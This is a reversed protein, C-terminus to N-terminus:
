KKKKKSNGKITEDLDFLFSNTTDNELDALDSGVDYSNVNIKKFTTAKKNKNQRMENRLKEFNEKYATENGFLEESTSAGSPTKGEELLVLRKRINEKKFADDLYILSKKWLKIAEIRMKNDKSKEWQDELLFGLNEYFIQSNPQILIAKKYNKIAENANKEKKWLINGLEYYPIPNDPNNTIASELYYKAEKQRNLTILCNAINIHADLNTGDVQIVQKYQEIANKVRGKKAYVSALNIRAQINQPNNEVAQYLANMAKGPQGLNDYAMALSSWAEASKSNLKIAKLLEKVAASNRQWGLYAYGLNFQAEFDNPNRSIIKRFKSVAQDFAGNKLLQIGTRMLSESSQANLSSNLCILYMCTIFLINIQKM